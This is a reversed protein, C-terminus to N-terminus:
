MGVEAMQGSRLGTRKRSRQMRVVALIHAHLDAGDKASRGRPLPFAPATRRPPGEEKGPYGVQEPKRPGSESHGKIEGPQRRIEGAPRPTYSLQYLM